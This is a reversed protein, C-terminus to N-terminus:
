YGGGLLVKKKIADSSDPNIMGGAFITSPKGQSLKKREAIAAAQVAPDAGTPATPIPAPDEGAGTLAEKFGWNKPGWIVSQIGDHSM